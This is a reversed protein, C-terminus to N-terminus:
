IPGSYGLARARQVERLTTLRETDDAVTLLYSVRAFIDEDMNALAAVTGRDQPVEGEKLALSISQRFAECNAGTCGARVRRKKSGRKSKNIKTRSKKTRSKKRPKKKKTRLKKRSNRLTRLVNSSQISDNISRLSPGLSSLRPLSLTDSLSKRKPTKKKKKKSKKPKHWHGKGKKKQKHKGKKGGGCQDCGTM